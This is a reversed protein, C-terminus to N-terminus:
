PNGLRSYRDLRARIYRRLGIGIYGNTYYRIRINGGAIAVGLGKPALNIIILIIILSNM